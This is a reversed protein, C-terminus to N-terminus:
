SKQTWADLFVTEMRDLMHEISFKAEAEARARAGLSQARQPDRILTRMAAALGDVDHPTVMLASVGDVVAEGIAGVPTTIIPLGCLMAQILSQPVGEHAYSPLVFLDSAQLFPAVDQQQGVFEIQRVCPLDRALQELASRQPGDGIIMLRMNPVAIQAFAEILYRHGKWSRLTAVISIVFENASIKLRERAATRFGPSFKETDQGTPVSDIRSPPIGLAAIQARLAEGTTVIRRPQHYLWRTAINDHIPVSVHRTRVLVPRRAGLRCALAALWSDTSSHTNLIDCPHANLWRALATVGRLRKRAIPLRWTPIGRSRAEEYLPAHCACVIGVNHGRAILGASESLIRLEQGGWGCSSESHIIKLRREPM